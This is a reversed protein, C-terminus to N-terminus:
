DDGGGATMSAVVTASYGEGAVASDASDASDSNSALGHCPWSRAEIGFGVIVGPFFRLAGSVYSHTVFRGRSPSTTHGGRSWRPPRAARLCRWRSSHAVVRGPEARRNKKPRRM